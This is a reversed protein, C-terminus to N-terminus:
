GQRCTGEVVQHAGNRGNEPGLIHESSHHARQAGEVSAGGKQLQSPWWLIKRSRRGRLQRPMKTCTM